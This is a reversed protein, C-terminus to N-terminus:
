LDLALPDPITSTLWDTAALRSCPTPPEIPQASSTKAVMTAADSDPVSSSLAPNMLDSASHALALNASPRDPPPIPAPSSGVVVRGGFESTNRTDNKISRCGSGPITSQYFEHVETHGIIKGCEYAASLNYSFVNTQSGMVNIDEHDLGWLNVTAEKGQLGEYYHTRQWFDEVENVRAAVTIPADNMLAQIAKYGDAKPKSSISANLGYTNTAPHPDLLTLKMYGAKAQPINLEQWLEMTGSVVVAGRSHGILHLDISDNEGLAPILGSAKLSLRNFLDSSARDDYTPYPICSTWWFPVVEDYGAQKLSTAMTTVWEPESTSFCPVQFGVSVASIVVKRFHADCSDLGFGDLTGEPDAVGIVYKLNFSPALATDFDLNVPVDFYQGVMALPGSITVSGIKVDDSTDFDEDPSRYIGINFTKDALAPNNIDYDVLIQRSDETRISTLVVDDGTSCTDQTFKYHTVEAHGNEFSSANGLLLTNASGVLPPVTSVLLVDDVFISVNVGPNAEIRYTHFQTPDITNFLSGAKGYPAYITTKNLGFGFYETGTAGIAQFATAPRLM